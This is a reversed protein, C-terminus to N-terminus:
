GTRAFYEDILAGFNGRIASPRHHGPGSWRCNGGRLVNLLQPLEDLSTAACFTEWGPSWAIRRTAQDSRRNPVPRLLLTPGAEMRWLRRFKYVTFEKNNSGYRKQKFFGPPDV